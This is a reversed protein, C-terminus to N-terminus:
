ATRAERAPRAPAATDENRTASSETPLRRYRGRVEAGYRYVLEGGLYGQVALALEVAAQGGDGRRRRSRRTM